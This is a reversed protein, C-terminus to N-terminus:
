RTFSFIHHGTVSSVRGGFTTKAWDLELVLNTNSIQSVTVNVGDDRVIVKGDSAAFSWTGSAPWVVKGNTTSYTTATFSLTMGQYMSTKDVNDVMVSSVTWVSGSAGTLTSTSQEAGTKDHKSCSVIFLSSLVFLTLIGIRKSTYFTNEFHTKMFKEKNM